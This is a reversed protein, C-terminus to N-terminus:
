PFSAACPVEATGTPPSPLVAPPRPDFPLPSGLGVPPAAGPGRERNDGIRGSSCASAQPQCAGQSVRSWKGAGCDLGKAKGLSWFAAALTGPTPITRGQM